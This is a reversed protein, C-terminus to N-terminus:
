ASFRALALLAFVVFHLRRRPGRALVSHRDFGGHVARSRAGPKEAGALIGHEPRLGSAMAFGMAMPIAMMAVLLGASTDRWAIRLWNAKNMDEYRVDFPNLFLKLRDWM